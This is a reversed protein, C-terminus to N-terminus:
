HSGHGDWSVRKRKNDRGKKLQLDDPSVASQVRHHQVPRQGLGLKQSGDKPDLSPTKSRAGLGSFLRRVPSTTHVPNAHALDLAGASSPVAEQGFLSLAASSSSNYYHLDLFPVSDTWESTPPANSNTTTTTYNTSHSNSSTNWPFNFPEPSSPSHLLSPAVATVSHGHSHLESPPQSFSRHLPTIFNRLSPGAPDQKGPSELFSPTLSRPHTDRTPTRIAEDASAHGTLFTSLRSPRSVEDRKKRPKESDMNVDEVPEETLPHDSSDLPGAAAHDDLKIADVGLENICHLQMPHVSGEGNGSIGTLGLGELGHGYGGFGGQSRTGFILDGATNSHHTFGRFSSSAFMEADSFQSHNDGYAVESQAFDHSATTTPFLDYRDLVGQSHAYSHSPSFSSPPGSSFHQQLSPFQSPSEMRPNSSLWDQPGWDSKGIMHLSRYTPLSYEAPSHAPSGSGSWGGGLFPTTSPISPLSSVWQSTSIQEAELPTSPPSTASDPVFQPTSSVEPSPEDDDEADSTDEVEPSVTRDDPLGAVTARRKRREFIPSPLDGESGKRRKAKPLSRPKYGAKLYLEPFANRFRDRLDTSRRNQSQFVPDKVITAWTTGHQEYGRKLAEDEEPTFPRRKRSRMKEFIFSGDPNSSRVRTSLHTKANPYLQRYADPFYTRFRDKLDVPSRNDFVLEPDSLIQKWNGVGWRNCGDVLMRTEEETWKKRPKKDQPTNDADENFSKRSKTKRQETVTSAKPKSTSLGTDDRFTWAPVLRPSSPLSVRRQKLTTSSLPPKFSFTAPSENLFTRSSSPHSEATTM